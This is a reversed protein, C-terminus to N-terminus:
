VTSSNISLGAPLGTASWTLTQGSQSDTGTMQLSAATGVAGSPQGPQERHRHQHRWWPQLDPRRDPGAGVRREVSGQHRQVARVDRRPEEGRDADLHPVEPVVVTITKMLLRTTVHDQEANQIGVGTVTSSNCTPSTPQGNTPNTGEALLYFWHNGPRRGRAGGRQSPRRTATTTV